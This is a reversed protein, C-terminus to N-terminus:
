HSDRRRARTGRANASATLARRHGNLVHESQGARARRQRRLPTRHDAARRRQSITLVTSCRTGYARIWCSHRLCSARGNPPCIEPRCATPHRPDRPGGADRVPGTALAERNPPSPRNCCRRSAHGCACSSRGPLTSFNTPFGTSGPRCSARLSTPAIRPTGSRDATPSCCISARMVPRMPRSRACINRRRPTARALYAPILGGRSPASRRRRGFERFNTVIGSAGARMSPSGPATRRCTAGAWSAPSTAGPRSRRPPGPTSNTAIRPSWSGTVASPQALRPSVFVDAAVLPAATRRRRRVLADILRASIAGPPPLAPHGAAIDARTFWRADELEGDRLTITM